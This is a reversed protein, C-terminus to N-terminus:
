FNSANNFGGENAFRIILHATSEIVEHYKEIDNTTFDAIEDWKYDPLYCIASKFGGEVPKEIYVKVKGDRLMESHVIETGDDLQIFPYMM